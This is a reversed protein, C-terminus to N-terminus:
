RSQVILDNRAADVADSVQRAFLAPHRWPWDHELRENATRGGIVVLPADLAAAM